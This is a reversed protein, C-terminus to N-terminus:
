HSIMSILDRDVRLLATYDVAGGTANTGKIRAGQADYMYVYSGSLHGTQTMVYTSLPM